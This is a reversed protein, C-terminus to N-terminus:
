KCGAAGVSGNMIATACAALRRQEAIKCIGQCVEAQAQNTFNGAVYGKKCVCTFGLSSTSTPTLTAPPVWVQLAPTSTLTSTSQSLPTPTQGGPTVQAVWMGLGEARAQDAALAFLEDCATDPPMSAADAYGQRVLTYNIFEDAVLVYRPLQGSADTQTTDAVLTVIQSNVLSQNINLAQAGFPEAM